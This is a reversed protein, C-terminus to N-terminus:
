SKKEKANSSEGAKKGNEKKSEKDTSRPAAAEAERLTRFATLTATAAVVTARRVARGIEIDSKDKRDIIERELSSGDLLKMEVDAVHILQELHTVRNLFSAIESYRGELTVRIPTEKYRYASGADREAQPEFSMLLLGVERSISTMKQLVDDIHIDYPLVSRVVGLQGELRAIEEQKSPIEAKKKRAAEFAARATSQSATVEAMQADLAQGEELYLYGALAAGPLLAVLARVLFPRSRYGQLLSSM